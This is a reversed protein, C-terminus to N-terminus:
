GGLELYPVVEIVVLWYDPQDIVEKITFLCNPHEPRIREVAKKKAQLASLPKSVPVELKRRM